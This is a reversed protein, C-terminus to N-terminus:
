LETTIYVYGGNNIAHNYCESIMIGRGDKTSPYRGSGEKCCEAVLKEVEKQNSCRAFEKWLGNHDTYVIIPLKQLANTENVQQKPPPLDLLMQSTESDEYAEESRKLTSEMLYDEEQEHDKTPVLAYATQRHKEEREVFDPQNHSQPELLQLPLATGPEDQEDSFASYISSQRIQKEGHAIKAVARTSERDSAERMEIDSKGLMPRATEPVPETSDMDTDSEYESFYTNFTRCEPEDNPELMDVDADTAETGIPGNTPDNTGFERIGNGFDPFFARFVSRRVFLSSVSNGRGEVPQRFITLFMFHRDYEYADEWHRGRRRAMSEGPGELLMRPTSEPPKEEAASRYMEALKAVLRELERKNYKLADRDSLKQRAKERYPDTKRLRYIEPSEFGLVYAFNAVRYWIVPDPPRAIPTKKGREKLPSDEVMDFACRMACLYLEQFKPEFKRHNRGGSFALKAFERLTRRGKQRGKSPKLLRKMAEAPGRLYKYDKQLSGLTPILYDVKRLKRWIRQKVAEDDITSFIRGERMLKDLFEFDQQSVGPCRSQVHRVTERDLLNM